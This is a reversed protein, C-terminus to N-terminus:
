EGIRPIKGQKIEYIYDWIGGTIPYVAELITTDILQSTYM